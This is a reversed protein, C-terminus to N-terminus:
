DSNGFKRKYYMTASIHVAIHCVAILFITIQIYYSPITGDHFRLLNSFALFLFLIYKNFIWCTSRVNQQILRMREDYDRQGSKWKRIIFGIFLIVCVWIVDLILASSENM